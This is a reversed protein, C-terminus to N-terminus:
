TLIFNFEFFIKPHLAPDRRWVLHRRSFANLSLRIDTISTPFPLQPTRYTDSPPLSPPPSIRSHNRFLSPFPPSTRQVAASPPHTLYTDLRTPRSPSLPSMPFRFTLFILISHLRVQQRLSPFSTVEVPFYSHHTHFASLGAPPLSLLIKFRLTFAIPISRLGVQPRLSLFSSFFKKSSSEM